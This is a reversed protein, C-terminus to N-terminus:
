RGDNILTGTLSIRQKGITKFARVIYEIILREDVYELLIPKLQFSNVDM